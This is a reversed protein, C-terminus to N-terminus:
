FYKKQHQTFGFVNKRKVRFKNGLFKLYQRFKQEPNQRLGIKLNFYLLHFPLYMPSKM